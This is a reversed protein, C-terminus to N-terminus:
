TTTGLDFRQVHVLVRLTAVAADAVDVVFTWDEGVLGLCSLRPNGRQRVAEGLYVKYTGPRAQGASM